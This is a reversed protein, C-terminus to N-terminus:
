SRFICVNKVLQYVKNTGDKLYYDQERPNSHIFCGSTRAELVIKQWVDDYLKSPTGPCMTMTSSETNPGNEYEKIKVIIKTDTDRELVATAVAKRM